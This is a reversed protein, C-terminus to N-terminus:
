LGSRSQRLAEFLVATAATALNLCRAAPNPMPIRLTQDPREARWTELLPPPLGETENGMVIWDGDRFQATTYDRKGFKTVLWVRSLDPVSQWFAEGDKHIVIEGAKMMEALHGVAARKLGPADIRFGLPRILHLRCGMAWCARALQGANQPIRPAYLVVHLM